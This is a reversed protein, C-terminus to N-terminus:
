YSMGHCCEMFHALASGHLRLTHRWSYEMEEAIQEFTMGRKYRLILLTRETESPMALIAEDIRRRASEKRNIDDLIRALMEDTRILLDALDRESNQSTPLGDLNPSKILTVIDDLEAYDARIQSDIRKYSWLIRKKEANTM